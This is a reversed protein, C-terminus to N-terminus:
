RPVTKFDIVWVWPNANWSDRGNIDIWLNRFASTWTEMGFDGCDKRTAGESKADEETIDQLREVRVDTIELTLRSAWRPMFDKPRRVWLRDGPGGYPCVRGDEGTENAVGWGVVIPAGGSLVFEGGNMLHLECYSHPMWGECPQPNVIRRTQTKRGDLIARVMPGSFIIPREKTENM